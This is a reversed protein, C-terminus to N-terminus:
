FSHQELATCYTQLQGFRGVCLGARTVLYIMSVVRGTGFGVLLLFSFFFFHPFHACHQQPCTFQVWWWGTRDELVGFHLCWVCVRSSSSSSSLHSHYLSPFFKFRPLVVMNQQLVAHLHTCCQISLSPLLLCTCTDQGYVLVLYHYFPPTHSPLTQTGSIDSLM